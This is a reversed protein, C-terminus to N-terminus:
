MSTGLTPVPSQGLELARAVGFFLFNEVLFQNSDLFIGDIKLVQIKVRFFIRCPKRTYGPNRTVLAGMWKKQRLLPIM